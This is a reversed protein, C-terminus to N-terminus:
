PRLLPKYTERSAYAVFSNALVLFLAIPLGKPDLFAHVLTINLIIPAILVAALPVFRGTLFALGCLLEIAKVTPLLYVSAALGDSFVKMPGTPPPPTILKFFFTISAFLFLLGMLSRLVITAAKM